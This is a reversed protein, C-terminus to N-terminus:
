GVMKRLWDLYDKSGDVIPYCLICPNEYSHLEKTRQILNKVRSEITKTILVVEEDEQLEDNWVYFSTISPFCNACAALKEKVLTKGILKAQELSSCTIYIMRFENM